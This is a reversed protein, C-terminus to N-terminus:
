SEVGAFMTSLIFRYEHMTRGEKTNFTRVISFGNKKYFANAIENNLADTELTIYAFEQPSVSCKLEDILKSGIGRGKAGPQIGISSLEVYPEERRSESPKLFARMLRMFVGPKRLFAGLSYWAFPILHYRLMHKYLGSLNKSYGVFGLVQGRECAVLIDSDAHETYSLYMQRLFGKGMFTLFFSPFTEMHIETVAEIMKRDRLAVSNIELM